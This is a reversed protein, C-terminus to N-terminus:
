KHSMVILASLFSYLVGIILSIILGISLFSEKSLFKMAMELSEAKQDDTLNYAEIGEVLEMEQAAMYDGYFFDFFLFFIVTSVISSVVTAVINIKLASLYSCKSAWYRKRSWFCSLTLIALSILYTGISVLLESGESFENIFLALCISYAILVIIPWFTVVLLSAKQEEFGVHDLPKETM